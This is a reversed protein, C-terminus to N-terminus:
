AVLTPARGPARGPEGVPTSRWAQGIRAIADELV